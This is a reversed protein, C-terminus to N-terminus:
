EVSIMYSYVKALDNMLEMISIYSRRALPEIRYDVSSFEEDSRIPLKKQVRQM